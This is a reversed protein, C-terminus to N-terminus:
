KTLTDGKYVKDLSFSVRCNSHIAAQVKCDSNVVSKETNAECKKHSLEEKHQDRTKMSRM